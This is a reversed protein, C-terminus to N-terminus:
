RIFIAGLCYLLIM